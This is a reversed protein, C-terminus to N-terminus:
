AISKERERERLRVCVRIWVDSLCDLCGKSYQINNKLINEEYKIGSDWQEM